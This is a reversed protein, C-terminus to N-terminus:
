NPTLVVWGRRDKKHCLVKEIYLVKDLEILSIFKSHSRNKWFEPDIESAIDNAFREKISSLLEEDVNSFSFVKRAFCVGVIPGGSKKLVILDEKIIKDFPAVKNVSFRSEIKKTGEMILSLFPETFVALHINNTRQLTKLKITNRLEKNKQIALELDRLLAKEWGM